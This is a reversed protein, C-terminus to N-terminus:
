ELVHFCVDNSKGQGDDDAEACAGFQFPLLGLDLEMWRRGVFLRDAMEFILVGALCRHVKLRNVSGATAGSCLGLLVFDGRAPAALNGGCKVNAIASASLDFSHGHLGVFGRVRLRNECELRNDGLLQLDVRCKNEPFLAILRVWLRDGHLYAFLKGHLM